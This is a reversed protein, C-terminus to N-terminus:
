RGPRSKGREVPSGNRSSSASGLPVKTAGQIAAQLEDVQEESLELMLQYGTERDPEVLWQLMLDLMADFNEASPNQQYAQVVAGAERQRRFYGPANRAPPSFALRTREGADATIWVEVIRAETGTTM